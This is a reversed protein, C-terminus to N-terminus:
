IYRAKAHGLIYDSARLLLTPNDKFFGLGKNCSSCLRGRIRGSQHSHDICLSKTEGCITCVFPIGYFQKETIGLSSKAKIFANRVPNKARWKKMAKKAVEPNKAYLGKAKIKCCDKCYTSLGSKGTYFDVTAKLLGCHKCLPNVKM